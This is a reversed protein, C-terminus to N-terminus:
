QFRDSRFGEIIIEMGKPEFTTWLGSRLFDRAGEVAPALKEGKVRLLSWGQTLMPCFPVKEHDTSASLMAVDFLDVGLDSRMFNRVSQVKDPLDAQDYTYAAYLGLSPDINKAARIRDALQEAQKERAGRPGEIRLVGYGAAAAVSARLKALEASEDRTGVPVYSVSAVSTGEVVVTGQYGRLAALVTGSGDAFQLAVSAHRRGRLNIVITRELHRSVKVRSNSFIAAIPSGTVSFTTDPQGGIGLFGTPEAHPANLIATQTRSFEYAPTSFQIGSGACIPPCGAPRSTGVVPVLEVGSNRLAYNAAERLSVPAQAVPDPVPEVDSPLHAIYADDGSMIEADPRQVLMVSRDSAMKQVTRELYPALKRNTVVKKGGALTRVMGSYPAQFAQLLCTTYIGKAHEVSLAVDVEFAEGAAHTAMFKDVEARVRPQRTPNKFIFGGQVRSASLSRPTSRCADSIFVVNAIGTERALRGSETLSIAENPNEPAQSLM